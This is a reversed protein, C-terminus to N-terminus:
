VLSALLETGQVLEDVEAHATEGRQIASDIREQASRISLLLALNLLLVGGVLGFFLRSVQRLKM